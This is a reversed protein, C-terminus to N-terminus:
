DDVVNGPRASGTMKLIEAAASTFLDFSVFTASGPRGSVGTLAVSITFYKLAIASGTVV